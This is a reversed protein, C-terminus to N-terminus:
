VQSWGECRAHVQDAYSFSPFFIVVGGPVVQCNPNNPEKTLTQVAKLYDEALSYLILSECGLGTGPLRQAAPAGARRDHSPCQPQLPPLRPPHGLAWQGGGPGAAQLLLLM